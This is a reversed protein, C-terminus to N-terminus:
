PCNQWCYQYRYYWRRGIHIWCICINGYAQVDGTDFEVSGAREEGEAVRDKGEEYTTQQTELAEYKTLDAEPVDYVKSQEGKKAITTVLAM